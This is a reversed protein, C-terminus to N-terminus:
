RGASKKETEAAPEVYPEANGNKFHRKAEAETVDIVDGAKWSRAESALSTNLKIKV